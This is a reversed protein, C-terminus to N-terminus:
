RDFKGCDSTAILSIGIGLFLEAVISFKFLDTNRSSWDRHEFFGNELTFGFYNTGP